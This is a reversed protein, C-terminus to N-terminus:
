KQQILIRLPYEAIEIWEESTTDSERIYMKIKCQGPNLPFGRMNMLVRAKQKPLKFKVSATTLNKGEESLLDCKEEFEKDEEGEQRQWLTFIAWKMPFISNPPVPKDSPVHVELNELITIMSLTNDLAVIIKECPAFILLKPM